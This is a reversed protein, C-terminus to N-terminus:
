KQRVAQHAISHFQKILKAVQNITLTMEFTDALNRPNVDNFTWTTLDNIKALDGGIEETGPVHVSFNTHGLANRLRRIVYAVTPQPEQPSVCAVGTLGWAPDLRSLPGAPLLDSWNEKTILLGCFMYGVFSGLSFPIQRQPAGTRELWTRYFRKLSIDTNPSSFIANNASELFSLSFMADTVLDITNKEQDITKAMYSM